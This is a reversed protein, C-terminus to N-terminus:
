FIFLCGWGWEGRWQRGGASHWQKKPPWVRFREGSGVKIAAYDAESCISTVRQARSEALWAREEPSFSAHMPDIESSLADPLTYLGHAERCGLDHLQRQLDAKSPPSAQELTTRSLQTELARLTAPGLALRHVVLARLSM